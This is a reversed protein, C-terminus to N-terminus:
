KGQGDLLERVKHALRRPDFPKQLFAINLESVRHRATAEETYGSMFITQIAPHLATLQEAVQRGNMQPMVLDTILLHIPGSHAAALAIAQQGHEADLVVYGGAELVLRVLTRVSEEDEVLLITERGKPLDPLDLAPSVRINPEETRPLYIRFIAGRGEESFIEIHGGSQKVFGYVMALGLGTGKGIEKTTFFPEFIQAKVAETMGIGTDSITVSVYPGAHVEPYHAAAERDLEANATTITLQGGHPMADRANVALNIIAQEFQVPDVKTLNLDPASVLSVEVDEGILRQLLKLLEGLLTNLNVLQPQLMQKRSFALLQRTLNAAREGAKQIEAVRPRDPDDAALRKLMLQSYGNIVTLLNNFDHAVGSALRGVAEMKQAQRFQEELHKLETINRAIGIIGQVGGRKDRYISQTTLTTRTGSPMVMTEEFTQSEGTAMLLRDRDMIAHADEAPLLALDDRGIVEAVTKGLVAAGARNIMLYRGQRDKVFIEDTTSEVIAQLLTHSDSLAQEAEKRESIDECVILLVLNGKVDRIACATEEAWLLSGNKRVIRLNRHIIEGPHTICHNICQLAVAIDETPILRLISAGTLEAVTYGLQEAGFRNVSLVAGTLDLTFYITPNAEYLIRYREESERLAAEAQKRETIDLMIGCVKAAKSEEVIVHVVDRLWVIRGDAAIMRYEFSQDRNESAAHQCLAVTWERDDPHIHNVWFDPTTWEALSYGLLREAQESVYTFQLTQADGEWFIGDISAMLREYFHQPNKQAPIMAHNTPM